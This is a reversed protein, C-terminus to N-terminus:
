KRSDQIEKDSIVDEGNCANAENFNNMDVITVRATVAETSVPNSECKFSISSALQTKQEKNKGWLVAYIGIVILLGGLISGVHLKEDLLLSGALAVIVLLLPQFVAVFLPGGKKVCWSILTVTPGSILVGKNVVAKGDLWETKTTYIFFQSGNTEPSVNAM